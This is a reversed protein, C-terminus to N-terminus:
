RTDIIKIVHKFITIKEQGRKIEGLRQSMTAQLIQYTNPVPEHM